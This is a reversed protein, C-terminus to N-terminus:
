SETETHKVSFLREFDFHKKVDDFVLIQTDASVLQYAFSREFAFSKGDITVVKKMQSIANMFIGKGTGGEPNDSIVEDNLIVAPCYSLNKHAHLLFGITSEMTKTRSEEKACINNIFKKYTCDKIECLSFNRPSIPM